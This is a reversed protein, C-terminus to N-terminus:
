KAVGIIRVVGNMPYATAAGGPVALIDVRLIDGKALSTVALESRSKSTYSNASSYAVSIAASTLSTSVNQYVGVSFNGSGATNIDGSLAFDLFLNDIDMDFPVQAYAAGNKTAKFVGDTTNSAALPINLVAQKGANDFVNAM